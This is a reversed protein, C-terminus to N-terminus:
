ASSTAQVPLLSRAPEISRFHGLQARNQNLECTSAAFPATNAVRQGIPPLNPVIPAGWFFFHSLIMTFLIIPSLTIYEKHDQGEHDQRM